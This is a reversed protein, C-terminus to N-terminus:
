GVFQDLFYTLRRTGDWPRFKFCNKELPFLSRLLAGVDIASIDV